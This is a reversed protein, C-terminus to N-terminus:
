AIARCANRTFVAQGHRASRRCLANRRGGDAALSPRPIRRRRCCPRIRGCSPASRPANPISGCSNSPGASVDKGPLPPWPTAPDEVAISATSGGKAGEEVLAMPIQSIFGDAARVELTDLAADPKGGLLALLPVARYTMLKKYSIDAPIEITAADPRTLLEAAAYRKEARGFAVTLTDPGAQAAGCALLAIVISLLVQRM